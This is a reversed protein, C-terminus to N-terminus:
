AKSGPWNAFENPPADSAWAKSAGEDASALERSADAELELDTWLELTQGAPSPVLLEVWHDMDTLLAGLSEVLATIGIPSIRITCSGEQGEAIQVIEGVVRGPRSRSGNTATAAIAIRDPHSPDIRLETWGPSGTLEKLADRLAGVQGRDLRARYFPRAGLAGSFLHVERVM